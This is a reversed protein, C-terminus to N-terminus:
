QYDLMFDAFIESTNFCQSRKIYEHAKMLTSGCEEALNCALIAQVALAAEWLQSGCSRMKMGDESVWLYDAIRALHFKFTDASPNEVWRSLMCLTKQAAGVSLYLSNEDEYHIYQMIEQLAKKRLVSLPWHAFLPELIRYLFEALYVQFLSHPQYLDEQLKLNMLLARHLDVGKAYMKRAKNWDISQYPQSHLEDRLELVTKTIPGVFRKGYLYSMPAYILRFHCWLRGLYIPLSSPLLILDPPIPNVGSWEFVGLVGGHDLIWKRAKEMPGHGSGEAKEDLLRLTTYCLASSFMISKGETHLGWGGDKNQHNCLYRRLEKQHELPLATNLSGTVYLAIVLIPTLFLPGPFDGPWHGDYAQISSCYKIGRRLTALVASETAEEDNKATIKEPKIGCPNNERALQMRALKDSSQKQSFRNRWFEKRANEVAEREESSGLQEDYVWIERGLHNFKSKLWPGGKGIELKWM